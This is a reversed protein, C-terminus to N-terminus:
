SILIIGNKIAIREIRCNCKLWGYKYKIDYNKFARDRWILKSFKIRGKSNLYYKVIYNGNFLEDILEKIQDNDELVFYQEISNIQLSLYVATFEIKFFEDLFELEILFRTDEISFCIIVGEKLLSLKKYVVRIVDIFRDKRDYNLIYLQLKELDLNDM